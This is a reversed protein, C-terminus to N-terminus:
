MYKSVSKYITHQHYQVKQQYHRQYAVYYFHTKNNLAWVRLCYAMYTHVVPKSLSTGPQLAGSTRRVHFVDLAQKVCVHSVAVLRSHSQSVTFLGPRSTDLIKTEPMSVARCAANSLPLQSPRSFMLARMSSPCVRTIHDAKAVLMLYNSVYILTLTM